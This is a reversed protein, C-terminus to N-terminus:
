WRYSEFAWNVVKQMEFFRHESSGCGFVVAIIRRGEREAEEVLNYHGEYNFGTKGGRYIRPYDRLLKNSNVLNHSVTGSVSTVSFQNLDAITAFIKNRMAYKFLLATEYPTSLNNKSIGVADEYRTKKLGLERAKNNMMQVFSIKGGRSDWYDALAQAADNGSVLVAGYILNRVTIRENSRLGMKSGILRTSNSSVSVVEEPALNELAVIATMVKTISAIPHQKDKDKAYLIKGTDNDIVVASVSNVEVKMSEIRKPFTPIQLPDIKFIKAGKVGGRDRVAIEFASHLLLNNEVKNQLSSLGFIQCILALSILLNFNM